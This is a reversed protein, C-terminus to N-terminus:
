SGASLLAIVMPAAQHVAVLLLGLLVAPVLTRLLLLWGRRLRASRVGQALAAEAGDGWIWGTLIALLLGGLLLFVEGVIRDVFELWEQSFAGPLGLLAIFAGGVLASRTRSWGLGDMLSSVVVELMSVASTLAAIYLAAFFVVGFTSGGADLENFAGPLTIFLAGIPNAGVDDQLGLHFILPFTVLGGLIAVATDAGVITGAQAAFNPADEDMYSALTMIGGMGLSLSFFAQGAASTIVHADLLASFDPEFMFAYGASAGSLTAAWAALGILMVLLIPVLARGTREIGGRVGARVIAVSLAISALHFLVADGGTTLQGFHGVTDQPVAGRATDILLRLTWGMINSYTSLALAGVLVFAAGLVTWRPGGVMALGHIPSRRTSRGLVLEALLVPMGVVLVFGVYLLVFAGGGGSSATYSFRWLNGLGVAAGVTALVFGTSSRWSERRRTLRMNGKDKQAVFWAENLVGEGTGSNGPCRRQAM